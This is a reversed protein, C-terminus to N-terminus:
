RLIKILNVVKGITNLTDPQLLGQLFGGPRVPAQLPYVPPRSIPRFGPRAMVPRSIPRAMRRGVPQSMRRGNSPGTSGVPHRGRQAGTRHQGPGASDIM